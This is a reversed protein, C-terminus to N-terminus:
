KSLSIREKFLFSIGKRLLYSALIEKKNFSFEEIFLNLYSLFRREVFSFDRKMSGSNHTSRWSFSAGALAKRFHFRALARKQELFIERSSKKKSSFFSFSFSLKFLNQFGNISLNQFGNISLGQIKGKKNYYIEIELLDGCKSLQGGSIVNPRVSKLALSPPLRHTALSRSIHIWFDRPAGVVLGM